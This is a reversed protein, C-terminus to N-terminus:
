GKPEQVKAMKVRSEKRGKPGQAKVRKVKSGKQGKAREPETPGQDNKAM